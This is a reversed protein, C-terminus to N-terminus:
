PFSEGTSVAHRAARAATASPTSPVTMEPAAKKTAHVTATLPGSLGIKSATPAPPPMREHSPM